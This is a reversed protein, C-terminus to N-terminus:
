SKEIVRKTVLAKWLPPYYKITSFIPPKKFEMEQEIIANDQEGADEEDTSAPDLKRKRPMGEFPVDFM